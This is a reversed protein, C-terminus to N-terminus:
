YVEKLYCEECYVIEPRTPSYSTDMPNQCKACARKYLIRPQRQRLRHVQRCDPCLPSLPVSLQRHFDLEKQIIKFNKACSTCAFTEKTLSNQAEALSDPINSTPAQHEQPNKDRWRSGLAIVENKERPFYQQAETENYAWPSIAKTLGEGWEGTHSMHEIITPLLNEYDEQSYQKNLICYSKKQLSVCGFCSTTNNNCSYCYFCESCDTADVCFCNNQGHMFNNCGYCFEGNGFGNCDICDHSEEAFACNRMNESSYMDYIEHSNRCNKLNGGTVNECNIQVNGRNPLTLFFQRAREQEAAIGSISQLDCQSLRHEYEERTYQINQICYSKQHLNKCQFCNTCGVCDELFHSSSCNRIRRSYSCEYCNDCDVVEYCLQSDKAECVDTCNKCHQTYYSYLVDESDFLVIFSLYNNKGGYARNCYESNETDINIIGLLPVAQLLESFQENFPRSFDFDKGYELPDFSDKWFCSACTARYPDDPHFISIFPAACLACPRRFINRENRWSLLRQQRCDPCRLPPPILEKKGNFVPSIKEYFAFDEDTLLFGNKCNQCTKQEMSTCTTVGM